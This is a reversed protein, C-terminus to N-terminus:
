GRCLNTQYKKLAEIQAELKDEYFADDSDLFAIYEGKSLEIGRNRAVCAGSNIPLKEIKVKYNGAYEKKIFTYTGDTSCDDVILLEWNKYTQELVSEITKSIFKATNYSPMIISVLENM